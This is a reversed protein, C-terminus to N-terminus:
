SDNGEIWYLALALAWPVVFYLGLIMVIAGGLALVTASYPRLQM